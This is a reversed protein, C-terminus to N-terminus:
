DDQVIQLALKAQNQFCEFQKTKRRVQDLSKQLNIRLKALNQPLSALLSEIQQINIIDYMAFTQWIMLKQSYVIM